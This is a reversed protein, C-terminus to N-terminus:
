IVEEVLEDVRVLLDSQLVHVDEIFRDLGREFADRVTGADHQLCPDLFHLVREGVRHHEHIRVCKGLHAIRQGHFLGVPELEVTVYANGPNHGPRAGVLPVDDFIGRAKSGSGIVVTTAVMIETEGKKFRQMEYDKEAAKMKGHVISLACTPFARSISEYGDMLNKFDMQESEEILPYVIYVQRKKAIESRLFEFVRLRDSDYRHVTQIPKRGKPLEDIISIDLDGYLTMALTRPIPTATMVLIHPHIRKNKEWLKARQAVGFRHQEDIVCLGLDKFQVVDELLAHTGVIIHIEGNQLGEHIVTREKKKTSGTLKVINLGMTDGWKKIGEYHQNALIETPAMLCAQTKSNIALLMAMFGVVTKGSGVDGQLLRNMQKGSVFDSRIEKMVRKQANTLEFALHEQVFSRLLETENFIQGPYEERRLLKQSILRLQNYFLEEFKLRRNAQRLAEFHPPHHIFFVAEKKSILRFREVLDSPLTEKIHPLALDLLTRTWKGIQKSDVYKRKLKETLPYIAQFYGKNENAPTLVDMEPHTIQFSGGFLTPKGYVIYENGPKLSKELWTIAQFWTLTLTGTGDTFDGVLRQKKGEGIKELSRLRGKIQAAPLQDNLECIRHFQTRDEHRFPYHELLDGYTFISLEEGLLSAKQPGVGKLFEIKTDFFSSM